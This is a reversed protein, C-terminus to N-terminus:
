KAPDVVVAPVVVQFGLSFSGLAAGDLSFRRVTRTGMDLSVVESNAVTLSSVSFGGAVKHVANAPPPSTPATVSKLDAVGCPASVPTPGAPVARAPSLPAVLSAVLTGVLVCGLLRLSTEFRGLGGRPQCRDKYGLRGTKEDVSM